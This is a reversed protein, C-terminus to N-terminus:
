KKKYLRSLAFKSALSTFAVVSISSVPMLIAAIIPSLQGTVAFYLGIVNYLFSIVFSAYVIKLSRKTLLIFDSLKNFSDAELIADCAPSFNFVDDAISIGVNSENLAGADNLGDGIMLVKKGKKKLGKIYELKEMPSQNFSLCADCNFIKQLNEKESENDGTIVHLEFNQKLQSIVKELDDRYQNSITFFGKFNKDISLFVQSGFKDEDKKNKEVGVFKASGLRIEKDNINGIIGQSPIERYNDVDKQYDADVFDFVSKSLPHYSQRSLSKLMFKDDGSLDEGSYDVSMIDPYTITGTKDFVVTDIKSLDEVVEASKLYLKNRGYHRMANGFSFPIALALACPCAVILVSSFAYVLISPDIFWWSVATIIAISLVVITFNRSVKDIIKSLNKKEEKNEINQNWLKTLKSQAVEKTIEIEITSGIQKGGAYLEDGSKKLVPRSEGTVFSYNINADDSILIGDAPIIEQNRIIIRDGIKLDKLQIAEEKEGKKKTVALPFYSKYDREFSLAQYTKNQYWKGILLFFVLGSLSDMYGSGTGSLIEYSSHFFIALIGVSIPLDINIVKHKLNKYASILYDNAAYFVIPLALILNLFGFLSQFDETVTGPIYEPMSYIMTNFFVFGSLGIKYALKKNASKNKNKDVSELSIMPVYHISALLEVVQRLSIETHKFTIDVEKKIFNVTSYTIAKNLQYLNELLWICSSCHIDPIYLRVKSFDGDTFYVLEKIIEENDLYSYKSGFDEMEVKIGPNDYIEYYDNLKNENLIQYVTKCGECCFDKDQWIVPFKGCDEGCHVCPRKETKSM